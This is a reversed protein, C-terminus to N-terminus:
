TPFWAAVLLVDGEFDASDITEGVYNALAFGPLPKGREVRLDWLHEELGESSGRSAAWAEAYAARAEEPGFLAEAELVAMAEEPWDQETLSM